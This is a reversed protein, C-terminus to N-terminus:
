ISSTSDNHSLNEKDNKTIRRFAYISGLFTFLLRNDNIDGSFQSNLFMFIFNLLIGLNLYYNVNNTEKINNLAVKLSFLIMFTFLFMGLVGLESLIELFINHPYLRMDSRNYIYSFGGIGVGIM